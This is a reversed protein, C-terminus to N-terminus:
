LGRRSGLQNRDRLGNVDSMHSGVACVDLTRKVYYLGFDHREDVVVVGSRVAFGLEDVESGVFRPPARGQKPAERSTVFCQIPM